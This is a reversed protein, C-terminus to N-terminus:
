QNAQQNRKWPDGISNRLKELYTECRSVFDETTENKYIPYNIEKDEGSILFVRIIYFDRGQTLYGQTGIISNKLIRKNSGVDVWTQLEPQPKTQYPDDEMHKNKEM